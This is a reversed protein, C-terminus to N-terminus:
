FPDPHAAWVSAVSLFEDAEPNMGLQRLLIGSSVREIFGWQWISRPEVGTLESLRRCREVGRAFADGALLDAGWERMLIGLDYGREIFLGEPDIFKFRRLGEGPVLLTNQSHCDGHALVANRPTFAAHRAEAFRLATDVVDGPWPTALKAQEDEIFRALSEAKEAGSMFGAADPIERWAELLTQCSFGIQVAPELGLESLHPGLRDLLMASHAEDHRLVRVYGQGNAHLLTRLERVSHELGPMVVKLVAEEGDQTTASVVVAETGGQMVGSLTLGWQRAITDVRTPLEQLWAQGEAGKALARRRVVDPIDLPSVM